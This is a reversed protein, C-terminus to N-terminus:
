SYAAEKGNIRDEQHFDYRVSSWKLPPLDNSNGQLNPVYQIIDKTGVINRRELETPSFASVTVPIDQLREARRQATVTIEELGTAVQQAIASGSLVTLASVAVTTFLRSPLRPM